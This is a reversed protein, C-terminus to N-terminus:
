QYGSWIDSGWKYDAPPANSTPTQSSGGFWGKVTNGLQSLSSNPNAFQGAIQGIAANQNNQLTQGQNFGQNQAGQGYNMYSLDNSQLQNLGSFYGQNNGTYNQIAQNQNAYNQQYAGLGSQGAGYTAQAGQNGTNFFGQTANNINSTAQGNAAGIAGVYNLANSQAANTLGEYQQNQGSQLGAQTNTYSNGLGQASGYAGQAASLGQTQRALQQNQWDINFNGLANSEVSAGLPSSQIGRAYQAARTQDTLQQATRNYLANQPDQSTQLVQNGAGYLNGQSQSINGLQGKQYDMLSQYNQNSQGAQNYLGQTAAQSQPLIDNLLSSQRLADNYQNNVNNYGRGALDMGGQGLNALQGAAYDARGQAYGYYPNNFQSQFLQQNYPSILAQQGGLSNQYQNKNDLFNQDVGAQDKPIYAPPANGGSSGGGGGSSGGGGGLSSGLATGLAGGIGPLLSNGAIGGVLGGISSLWGM